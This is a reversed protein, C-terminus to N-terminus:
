NDGSGEPKVKIEQAQRYVRMKSLGAEGIDLYVGPEKM